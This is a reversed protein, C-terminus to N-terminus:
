EGTMAAYWLVIEGDIEIFAGERNDWFAKSWFVVSEDKNAYRAGSASVASKLEHQVGNLGLLVYQGDDSYQVTFLQNYQTTFVKPAISYQIEKSDRTKFIRCAGLTFLLAILIVRFSYGYLKACFEWLM